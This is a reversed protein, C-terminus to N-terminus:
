ILVAHIHLNVNAGFEFESYFHVSSAATHKRGVLVYISSNFSLSAFYYTSLKSEGASSNFTVCSMKSNMSVTSIKLDTLEPCDVVRDFLKWTGHPKSFQFVASRLSCFVVRSQQEYEGLFVYQMDRGPHLWAFSHETFLEHHSFTPVTWIPNVPIPTDFILILYGNTERFVSENIRQFLYKTLACREAFKGSRDFILVLFEDDFQTEGYAFAQGHPPFQEYQIKGDSQIQIKAM